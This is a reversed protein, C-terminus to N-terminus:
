KAIVEDTFIWAPKGEAPHGAPCVGHNFAKIIISNFKDAPCLVKYHIISGGTARKEETVAPKLTAITKNKDTFYFVVNDPRFIWSESLELFRTEIETVKPKEKIPVTIEFNDSEFGVWCSNLRTTMFQPNEIKGDALSQKNVDPYKTSPQKLLHYQANKIKNNIFKYNVPVIFNTDGYGAQMKKLQATLENKVHTYQPNNYVSMMENPDKQLDFLEWQDIDYYYHILKYKETRIGYHRKVAHEGPYEFYHYYTATRLSQSTDLYNAFSLGQMGAPYNIGLGLLM